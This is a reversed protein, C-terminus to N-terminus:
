MRRNITSSAAALKELHEDKLKSYGRELRGVQVYSIGLATAVQQQSLRHEERMERLRNPWPGNIPGLSRGRVM